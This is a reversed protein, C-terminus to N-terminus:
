TITIEYTEGNGTQGIDLRASSTQKSVARTEAVYCYYWPIAPKPTISVTVQALM